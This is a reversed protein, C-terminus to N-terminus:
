NGQVSTRSFFECRSELNKKLRPPKKKHRFTSKGQRRKGADQGINRHVPRGVAQRPERGGGVVSQAARGPRVQQGGALVFHQRREESASDTGQETGVLALLRNFTATRRPRQIASGDRSRCIPFSAAHHQMILCLARSLKLSKWNSQWRM